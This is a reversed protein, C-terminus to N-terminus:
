SFSKTKNVIKKKTQKTLQFSSSLTYTKNSGITFHQCIYIVMLMLKNKLGRGFNPKDTKLTM